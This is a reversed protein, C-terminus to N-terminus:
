VNGPQVTLPVQSVGESASSVITEGTPREWCLFGKPGTHGIPKGDDSVNMSIAAGLSAPRMVYIRGKSADEVKKSQDPLRVYQRTGACGTLLVACLCGAILTTTKM